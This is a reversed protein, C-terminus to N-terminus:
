AQQALMEDAAAVIAEGAFPRPLFRVWGGHYDTAADAGGGLVLVPVKPLRDHLEAVFAPGRVGPMNLGSIVLGLRDAFNPQEVLCLAEAADSVRAVSEFKRELMSKRLFAQLPDDDVLLITMMAKSNRAGLPLRGIEEVIQVIQIYYIAARNGARSRLQEGEYPSRKLDILYIIGPAGDPRGRPVANKNKRSPHSVVVRLWRGTGLGETGLGGCRGL